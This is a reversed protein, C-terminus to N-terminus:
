GDDVAPYAHGGVGRHDDAGGAGQGHGRIDLEGGLASFQQQLGPPAVQDQLAVQSGGAGDDGQQALVVHDLFGAERHEVGAAGHVDAGPVGDRLSVTCQNGGAIQSGSVNEQLSGTVDGQGAQLCSGAAHGHDGGLSADQVGAVHM